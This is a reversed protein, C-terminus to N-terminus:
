VETPRSCLGEPLNSCGAMTAEKVTLLTAWTVVFSERWFMKGGELNEAAVLSNIAGGYLMGPTTLHKAIRYSVGDTALQQNAEPCFPM